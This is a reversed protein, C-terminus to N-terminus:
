KGTQGAIVIGGLGSAAYKHMMSSIMNMINQIETVTTKTETPELIEISSPGYHIVAGVINELNKAVFEIECIYSFGVELNKLPKEVRKIDSFQKKYMKLRADNEIKDIHAELAKKSVQENSALIEFAAWVRFQGSHVLEDAESKDIM